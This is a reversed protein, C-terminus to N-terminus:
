VDVGAKALMSKLLALPLGVVNDYSGVIGHIFASARGQIGYGGAKDMPEGCRTYSRIDCDSMPGFRVVTHCFDCLCQRPKGQYVCLGTYVDHRDNQLLSLMEFADQEDRPKGLAKSRHVVMTDAGICIVDPYARAVSQAKRRALLMVGQQPILRNPLTEDVNPAMCDFPLGLLGMLVRRRPSASALIMTQMIFDGKCFLGVDDAEWSDYVVKSPFNTREYSKGTNTM